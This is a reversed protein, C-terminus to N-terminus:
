GQVHPAPDEEEKPVTSSESYDIDEDPDVQVYESWTYEGNEDKTYRNVKSKAYVHKDKFTNTFSVKVFHKGDQLAQDANVRISVEARPGSSTDANIGNSGVSGFEFNGEGTRETIVFFMDTKLNDFIISKCILKGDQGLDSEDFTLTREFTDLPEDGEDYARKSAFRQIDFVVTIAGTEPNFEEKSTDITKTITLSGLTPEPTKPNHGVVGEGNIAIGGGNVNSHNGTIFLNAQAAEYAKTIDAQSPNATLAIVKKTHVRAVPDKAGTVDQPFAGNPIQYVTTNLTHDFTNHFTHNVSGLEKLGSLTAENAGNYMVGERLDNENRKVDAASGSMYGSWHSSGGGLMRDYVTSEKASFIDSSHKASGLAQSFKEKIVKGYGDGLQISANNTNNKEEATNKFVAASSSITVANKCGAIGGGYGQATNSTVIPDFVALYGRDNSGNSIFLGGGGYDFSTDTRNNTIYGSYITSKDKRKGKEDHGSTRCYLGGGESSKAYNSAVTSGTMELYGTTTPFMVGGGGDSSLNGTIFGGDLKLAGFTLIGGGGMTPLNAQAYVPDGEGLPSWETRNCSLYLQSGRGAMSVDVSAEAGYIGGGNYQAANGAIDVNGQISLSAGRSAKRQTLYIAGGNGKTPMAEESLAATSTAENGALVASGSLNVTSGEAYIAGGNTEAKNGAMVADGVVNVTSQAFARVAAGALDKAHSSWILGGTMTLTSGTVRVTMGEGNKVGDNEFLGGTINVTSGGTATILAQIGGNAYVSGIGGEVHKGEITITNRQLTEATRGTYESVSSATYYTLSDGSSNMESRKGADRVTSFTGVPETTRTM